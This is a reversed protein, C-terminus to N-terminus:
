PDEQKPKHGGREIYANKDPGGLNYAKNYKLYIILILLHVM